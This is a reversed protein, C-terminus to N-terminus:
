EEKVPRSYTFEIEKTDDTSVEVVMEKTGYKEHWAEVTYKGPPLGTITFMGDEGTVAFFPHDSVGVFANMWPHVDCKVPVMVEARKFVLTNVLGQKPQSQNFEPNKKPLFHINHATPDSNRIEITQGVRVGLVHPTYVCGKQDMVIPTTPAAAGGEPPNKVHLYVNRLTANENTVVAEARPANAKGGHFGECEANLEVQKGKYPKGDWKVKGKITAGEALAMSGMVAVAVVAAMLVSALKRVKM